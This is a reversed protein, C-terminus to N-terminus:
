WKIAAESKMSYTIANYYKLVELLHYEDLEELRDLDIGTKLRKLMLEKEPTLKVIRYTCGNAALILYNCKKRRNITFEKHFLQEYKEVIDSNLSVIIPKSNLKIVVDKSTLKFFNNRHIDCLIDENNANNLLEYNCRVRASEFIICDDLFLNTELFNDTLYRSFNLAIELNNLEGRYERAWEATIEINLSKMMSITMPYFCYLTLIIHTFSIHEKGGGVVQPIRALRDIGKVYDEWTSNRLNDKGVTVANEGMKEADTIMDLFTDKISSVDRPREVVACNHNEQFGKLRIKEFMERSFVPCVGCMAVELPTIPAHVKIPFGEELLCVADCSRIYSPIDWPTVGFERILLGKQIYLEILKELRGGRPIDGTMLLILKIQFGEQHLNFSAEMLEELCKYKSYKGYVGIVFEAENKTYAKKGTPTFVDAPLLTPPPMPNLRDIPVDLSLMRSLKDWTTSIMSASQLMDQYRWGIEKITSLRELDSGAFHQYLGINKRRSLESAAAGYPELYGSVIVSSKYTEIIKLGLGVLKSQSMKDMPIHSHKPKIEGEVISPDTYYTRLSGGSEYDDFNLWKLDELNWQDSRLSLSTENANTVVRVKYGNLALKRARWYEQTAVGGITPPFKTIFLIEKNWGDTAPPKGIDLLKLHIMFDKLFDDLNHELFGNLSTM